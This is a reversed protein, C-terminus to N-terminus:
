WTVAIPVDGFQDNVIESADLQWLSYARSEGNITLGLIMEEAHMQDEAAKGQVFQPDRIAKIADPALVQYMSDGDVVAVVEAQRQQAFASQIALILICTLFIKKM